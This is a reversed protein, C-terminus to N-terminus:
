QAAIQAGKEQLKRHWAWASEVISQLGSKSPGWGLERRARSINALLVAPDGARRAAVRAQVQREGVKEVMAILERVSAGEGSGLNFVYAGSKELLFDVAKVHAAALDDVHVYDRICTGDPTPYDDGHITLPFGGEMAALALPILHSEGPHAEGIDAAEHAGAANFYRLSVSRMGYAIAYDRLMRETMAKTAGYPSLPLVPHDEAIPTSQPEGYVAASSSFVVKCPINEAPAVHRIAELLAHSGAVNVQYYRAPDAVSEGSVILGALHITAVPRWRELVATIQRPNGVDGIELPGWKVAWSHGSSMDDFSIPLYGASAAARCVHSGIYGAGGTVLLAPRDSGVM